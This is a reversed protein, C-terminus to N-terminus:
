VSAKYTPVLRCKPKWSLVWASPTAWGGRSCAWAFHEPTGSPTSCHLGPTSNRVCCKRACQTPHVASASSRTRLKKSRPTPLTWHLWRIPRELVRAATDCGPVPKSNRPFGPNGARTALDGHFLTTWFHATWHFSHSPAPRDRLADFDGDPGRM